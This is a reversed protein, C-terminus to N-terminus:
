GAGGMFSRKMGARSRPCEPRSIPAWPWPTCASEQPGVWGQHPDRWTGPRPGPPREQGSGWWEECSSQLVQRRGRRGRGEEGRVGRGM